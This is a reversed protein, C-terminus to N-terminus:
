KDERNIEKMWSLGDDTNTLPNYEAGVYGQYGFKYIESLINCPSLVSALVIIKIISAGITKDWAKLFVPWGINIGTNITPTMRNINASYKPNLPTFRM